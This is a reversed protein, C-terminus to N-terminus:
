RRCVSSSAGVRLKEIGDTSYGLSKLLKENQAGAVQPLESVDVDCASLRFGAVPVTLGELAGAREDFRHLVPRGKVHEDALMAEMRQVRSVPERADRLVREWHEVPMTAIIQQLAESEAAHARIREPTADLRSATGGAAVKLRAHLGHPACTM